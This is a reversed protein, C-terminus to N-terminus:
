RQRVQAVRQMMAFMSCVFTSAWYSLSAVSSLQCRKHRDVNEVYISFEHSGAKFEYFNAFKVVNKFNTFIRQLM